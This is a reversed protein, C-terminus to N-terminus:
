NLNLLGAVEEPSFEYSKRCYECTISVPEQGSAASHLEDRGLSLLIGAVQKRSCSCHFRLPIQEHVTFPVTDFINALIQEPTNGALLQESLSPMALLQKEVTSLAQEECGPLAQVLLGGAMHIAAEASLSVGLAVSSPVQESTTLFYAIDEGIESTQLQVTSRYPDKLGLDKIVSLFGARGIAGSVDFRDDRPPLGALPQKVSCRVNGDSDTEAHLKQLPGNGEIIMALRQDDKLLAGLLATGTAIRALAITATPDTGQMQRSTECLDTTIAAVARLNGDKSTMRLLYDSM